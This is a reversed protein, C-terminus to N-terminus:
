VGRPEMKLYESALRVAKEVMMPTIERATETESRTRAWGLYTLSRLFLFLPLEEWLTESLRRISRYGTLLADHIAGYYPQDIHWFLATALEFMHWGFGADDFDILKLRGDARLINEPVLDAHILGYIEGSQGLRQLDQRAKRCAKDILSLHESLAPLDRFQGWVPTPGLLGRADWAHRSFSSPIQWALAQDHLKAALQGVQNYLRNLEDSSYSFGTEISGLQEGELWVLMDVQLPEPLRPAAAKVFISGDEAPVVTPVEISSGALASMWQLESMLEADTHYGSRHVRLAFKDGSSRRVLFVANERYKVLSIPEFSGGWRDLAARAVMTMTAVQEALELAFFEKM